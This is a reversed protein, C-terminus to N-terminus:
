LSIQNTQDLILPPGRKRSSDRLAIRPPNENKKEIVLRFLHPPGIRPTVSLVTTKPSAAVFGAKPFLPCKPRTAQVTPGAPLGGRDAMGVMACQHKGNRRCCSPLDSASNALLVPAILPFSFVALLLSTLAPRM